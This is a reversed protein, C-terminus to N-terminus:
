LNLTSTHLTIANIKKLKEFTNNQIAYKKLKEEFTVNFIEEDFTSTANSLCYCATFSNVGVTVQASNATSGSSTCTVICRYDTAATQGVVSAAASTAGAVTANTFQTNTIGTGNTLNTWTGLGAPSYQWQYTIGSALTSGTLGLAFNQAPCVTPLTTTSNGATVSGSCPTSAIVNFNYDECEGFSLGTACYDTIAPVASGAFGLLSGLIALM